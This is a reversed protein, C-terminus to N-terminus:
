VYHPVENTKEFEILLKEVYTDFRRKDYYAALSHEFAGNTENEIAELMKQAVQRIEVQAHPSNRLNCFHMFSRFNFSVDLTIMSNYGLYYRCAEKARKRGLELETNNICKHYQEVGMVGATALVMEEYGEFDAPTYIYNDKIEKYRASEGNVSVGIRHKLLHIHTAQDV